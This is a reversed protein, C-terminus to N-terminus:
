RQINGNQQKVSVLFGRLKDVEYQIYGVFPEPLALDYLKHGTTTDVEVEVVGYVGQKCYNKFTETPTFRRGVVVKSGFEKLLQFMLEEEAKTKTMVMEGM